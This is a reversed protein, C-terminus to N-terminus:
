IRQHTQDGIVQAYNIRNYYLKISVLNFCIFYKFKLIFLITGSYSVDPVSFAIHPNDFIKKM